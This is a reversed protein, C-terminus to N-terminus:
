YHMQTNNRGGTRAAHSIGFIASQPPSWRFLLCSQFLFCPCLALSPIMFFTLPSSASRRSALCRSHIAFWLARSVPFCLHWCTILMIPDSFLRIRGAWTVSERELCRQKEQWVEFSLSNVELKACWGHTVLTCAASCRCTRVRIFNAVSPKQTFKCKTFLNILGSYNDTHITDVARSTCAFQLGQINFDGYM